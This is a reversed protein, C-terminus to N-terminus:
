GRVRGPPSERRRSLGAGLGLFIAWMAAISPVQLAYDVAGHILILASAGMVAGLWIRPGQRMLSGRAVRYLVIAVAGFMPLSLALGGEELWQLYVNHAAGLTHLAQYNQRTQIMDNVANFAGLGYGWFPADLFARWHASFATARSEAGPALDAFRASTLDGSVIWVGALFFLLLGFPGAARWRRERGTLGALLLVLLGAGASLLGGRSATLALCTLSLLLLAIPLGARKLFYELRAVQNPFARPAREGILMLRAAAMLIFVGFVSAANNASLFSAHLRGARAAGFASLGLQDTCFGIFALASYFAAFYLFLQFFRASSRQGAGIVAGSLFAAGLAALKILERVTADRDLTIAGGDGLWDWAPHAAGPWPGALQLCGGAAVVLLLLGPVRGQRLAHRLRDPRATAACVACVAFLAASFWLALAASNAGYALHGGFLLALLILSISQADTFNGGTGAGDKNSNPNLRM